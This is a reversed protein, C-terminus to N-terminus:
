RFMLDFYFMQCTNIHDETRHLFMLAVIILPVTGFSYTVSLSTPHRDDESLKKDKKDNKDGELLKNKWKWCKQQIGSSASTPHRVGELIKKM